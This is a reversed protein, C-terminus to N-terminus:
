GTRGGGECHAAPIPTCPRASTKARSRSGNSDSSARQPRLGFERGRGKRVSGGGEACAAVAKRARGANHVSGWDHAHQGGRASQGGQARQGLTTREAGRSLKARREGRCARARLRSM